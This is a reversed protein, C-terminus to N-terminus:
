NDRKFDIKHKGTKDNRLVRLGANKIEEIQKRYDYAQALNGSLYTAWMNDLLQEMERKRGMIEIMCTDRFQSSNKFASFMNHLMEQAEDHTMNDM